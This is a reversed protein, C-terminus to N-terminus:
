KVILDTIKYTCQEGEYWTPTIRRIKGNERNMCFNQADELKEYCEGNLGRDAPNDSCQTVVAWVRKIKVLEYDYELKEKKNINEYDEKM